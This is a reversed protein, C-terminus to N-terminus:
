QNAMAPMHFPRFAPPGYLQHLVERWDDWVSWASGYRRHPSAITCARLLAVMARPVHAPLSDIDSTGGLLRVICRAAMYLDTAPTAPQKDHVEPPYDDRYAVSLAKITMGSEVSYCWDLLLGNHDFPRVLVHPLLVAGHVLGLNHTAGLAALVRNFMWGVHEPAVGHRYARTVNELTVYQEELRLVNVQRQMTGDDLTFTEALTPFHARVPQPRLEREVRRLARAEANMLDNNRGHRVAKLVVRGDMSDAEFLDCLDGQLRSAVAKYTARKSTIIVDASAGYTGSAVERQAVEYWHGLGQFAEVAGAIGRNRDPHVVRAREYYRSRLVDMDGSPMPGFVDQAKAAERVVRSLEDFTWKM